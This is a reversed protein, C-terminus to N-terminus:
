EDEFFREVEDLTFWQTYGFDDVIVCECGSKFTVEYLNGVTFDMKNMGDEYIETKCKVYENM